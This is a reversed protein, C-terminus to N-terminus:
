SLGDIAARGRERAEHVETESLDAARKFSTDRPWSQANLAEWKEGSFSGPFLAEIEKMAVRMATLLAVARRANGGLAAKREAEEAADLQSQLAAIQARIEDPTQPKSGGDRGGNRFDEIAKATNAM